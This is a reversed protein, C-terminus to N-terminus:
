QQGFLAFASLSFLPWQMTANVALIEHSFFYSLFTVSFYHISWAESFSHFLHSKPLNGIHLGKVLTQHAYEM